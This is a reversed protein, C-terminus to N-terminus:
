LKNYVTFGVRTGKNPESNIELVSSLEEARQRMNLLGNGAEIDKEVFGKGDDEIRFIIRDEKESIIIAIRNADAYKLANNTAEQIIRFINLGPLARFTVETAIVDEMNILVNVGPHSLRAKEIFNAIRSQLDKLSIDSKNMAWITDRLEQITDKAFAVITNLKNTLSENKGASYYKITDIASIIFTLQAGINDHLDRSISLRQEQLKNHNEIKEIRLKQENDKQQKINKFVQQKYLLFGILGIIIALATLGFIWLNRIKVLLQHEAIKNRQDLIINEKEASEYKVTIDEIDKLKRTNYLSDNLLNYAKLSEFAQQYKGQSQYNATIQKHNYAQIDIFNIKRAVANSKQFFDNSIQYKETAKYYEGLATYNLMLAFDDSLKERIALAQKLYSEAKTYNKLLLQNYGLFELSYGIGVSDNRELQINLSKLFRKNAEEYDANDRFVVGSENNIRAIGERNNEAEYIALAKDYFKLAREAQELKRYMRAMDDYLLGLKENNGANELEALARYYYVSASDLNGKKNIVGAKLRLFEGKNIKDNKENALNYGLQTLELTEDYQTLYIKQIHKQLMSIKRSYDKENQVAQRISDASSLQQSFSPLSFFLFAITGLFNKYSM